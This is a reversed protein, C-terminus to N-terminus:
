DYIDLMYLSNILYMCELRPLSDASTQELALVAKSLHEGVWKALLIRPNTAGGICNCFYVIQLSVIADSQHDKPQSVFTKNYKTSCLHPVAVRLMVVNLIIVSLIIGSLVVVNMM